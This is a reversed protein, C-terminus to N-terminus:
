QTAQNMHHRLQNVEKLQSLEAYIVLLNDIVESLPM